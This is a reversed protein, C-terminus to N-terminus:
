SGADIPWVEFRTVCSRRWLSTLMFSRAGAIALSFNLANEIVCQNAKASAAARVEVSVSRQDCLQGSFSWRHSRGLRRVSAGHLRGVANQFSRGHMLRVFCVAREEHQQVSEPKVVWSSSGEGIRSGHRSLVNGRLLKATKSGHSGASRTRTPQFKAVLPIRVKPSLANMRARVM